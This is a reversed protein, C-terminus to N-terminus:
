SKVAIYFYNLVVNSVFGNLFCIVTRFVFSRELSTGFRIISVNPCSINGTIKRVYDRFDWNSAEQFTFFGKNSDVKISNTM